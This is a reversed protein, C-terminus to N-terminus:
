EDEDFIADEGDDDLDEFLTDSDEIDDEPMEEEDLLLDSNEDEM